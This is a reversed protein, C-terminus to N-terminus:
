GTDFAKVKLVELVATKGNGLNSHIAVARHGSELSALATVAAKSDIFYELHGHLSQWVYRPHMDGRLLLDFIYRDEFPAVGGAPPEFRRVCYNLPVLGADASYSMSAKVLRANFGELGIELVTGFRSIKDKSLPDIGPGVIFFSKNKLEPRDYLIRRIDI